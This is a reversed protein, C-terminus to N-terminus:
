RIARGEPHAGSWWRHESQRQNPVLVQSGVRSSLPREEIVNAHFSDLMREM